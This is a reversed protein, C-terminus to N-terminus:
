QFDKIQNLSPVDNKLLKIDTQLMLIEIDLNNKTNKQKLFDAKLIEEIFNDHSHFIHQDKLSAHSHICNESLVEL